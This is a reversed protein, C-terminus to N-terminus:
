CYAFGDPGYHHIPSYRAHDDLVDGAALHVYLMTTALDSHGLIIQLVAVSGGGRVYFTGFTHRLVHPGTLKPGTLGARPFLGRFLRVIGTRSLPGRPGTWIYKSDGLRLLLERVQPSLPVQREGVKGTVRLYGDGVHRKTLNVIEGLRLGTDMVLAVLAHERPDVCAGFVAKVEDVTFVRPLKKTRPLTGVGDLVNGIEYERVCWRFFTNLARRLDKRSVLGLNSDALVHLVVQRSPPLVQCRAQLKALGWAYFEITKGSLGRSNCDDLFELVAAATGVERVSPLPDSAQLM